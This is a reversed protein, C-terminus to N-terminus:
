VAFLDAEREKVKRKPKALVERLRDAARHSCDIEAKVERRLKRQPATVEALRDMEAFLESRAEIGDAGYATVCLEDSANFGCPHTRILLEKLQKVKGWYPGLERDLSRLVEAQEMAYNMLEDIEAILALERDTM